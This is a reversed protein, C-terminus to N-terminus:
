VAEYAGIIHLESNSNWSFPNTGSIRTPTFDSVVISSATNSFALRPFLISGDFCVANGLPGRAVIATVPLTFQWTGSGANSTAGYDFFIRYHILKGVRLFFGTLSGNGVSAGGGSSSFVPTYAEWAATIDTTGVLLPGTFAKSGTITQTGAVAVVDGGASTELDDFVKRAIGTQISGVDLVNGGATTEVDDFVKRGTITQVSALDVVDSGSRQLGGTFNKLGSITQTGGTGVVSGTVGHVDTADNIHDNAETFDRASVGHVIKSGAAHAAATTGDVGRVVTLTTGVIASVDIVEELTADPEIICTFPFQTPFGAVSDVVISTTTANAVGSPITHSPANKYFRVPM